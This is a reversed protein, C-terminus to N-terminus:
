RRISKKQTFEYIIFLVAGLLYVYVFNMNSFWVLSNSHILGGFSCIASILLCIAVNFYKEELIFYVISSYILAIIIAGNALISMGVYDVGSKLYHQTQPILFVNNLDLNFHEASAFIGAKSIQGLKTFLSENMMIAIATISTAYHKFPVTSFCQEISKYGVLLIFPIVALTPIVKVLTSIIGTVGIFLAVAGLLLSYGYGANMEKWTSYGWYIGCSFPAGFLGGIVNFVGSYILTENLDFDDGISHALEVGMITTLIDMFTFAIIAPLVLKLSGWAGDFVELHLIPLNFAITTDLEVFPVGKIYQSIYVVASVVCIFKVGPSSIKKGFSSMFFLIFLIFVMVGIESFNFIRIINPITLVGLAIGALTGFLAPTPLYSRFKRGLPGFIIFLLGSIINGLVAVKWVMIFDNTENYIPMMISFIWLFMKSVTVGTPLATMPRNMKKQLSIAQYAFFVYYLTMQLSLSPFVVQKIFTDNFGLTTILIGYAVLIKSFSDFFVAISVDLDGSRWIKM